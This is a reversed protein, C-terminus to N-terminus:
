GLLLWCFSGFCSTPRVQEPWIRHAIGGQGKLSKSPRVLIQVDDRRSMAELSAMERQSTVPSSCSILYWKRTEQQESGDLANMLMNSLTDGPHPNRNDTEDYETSGPSRAHQVEIHLGDSEVRGCFKIWGAFVAVKSSDQRSCRSCLEKFGTKSSCPDVNLLFVLNGEKLKRGVNKKRNNVLVCSVDARGEGIDTIGRFRIQMSQKEKIEDEAEKLVSALAEEIIFPRFFRKYDEIAESDTSNESGFEVPVVDNSRSIPCFPHWAWSSLLLRSLCKSDQYTDTDTAPQQRRGRLSPGPRARRQQVPADGMSPGAEVTSDKRLGSLELREIIHPDGEHPVFRSRATFSGHADWGYPGHIDVYVLSHFHLSRLQKTYSPRLEASHLSM